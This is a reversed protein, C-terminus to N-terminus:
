KKVREAKKDYIKLAYARNISANCRPCPLDDYRLLSIECWTMRYGCRMCEYYYKLDNKNKKM